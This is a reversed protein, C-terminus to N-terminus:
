SQQLELEGALRLGLMDIDPPKVKPFYPLYPHEREQRAWGGSLRKNRLMSYSAGHDQGGLALRFRAAGEAGSLIIGWVLLLLLVKKRRSFRPPNSQTTPAISM